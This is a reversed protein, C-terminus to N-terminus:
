AILDDVFAQHLGFLSVNADAAQLARLAEAALPPQAFVGLNADVYQPRRSRPIIAAGVQLAWRMATLGVANLSVADAATADTDAAGAVTHAAALPGHTRLEPRHSGYAQLLIGHAECYARLEPQQLM